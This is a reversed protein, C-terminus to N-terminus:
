GCRIATVVMDRDYTVRVRDPRYDMTVMMDPGVWQFIRAGTADQIAAGLEATAREGVYQQAPEASCLGGAGVEDGQPPTTACATLAALCATALLIRM